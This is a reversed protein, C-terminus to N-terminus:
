RGACSTEWLSPACHTAFTQEASRPQTNKHSLLSSHISLHVCALTSAIFTPASLLPGDTKLWSFLLLCFTKSRLPVVPAFFVALLLPRNRNLAFIYKSFDIKRKEDTSQIDHHTVASPWPRAWLCWHVGLQAMRTSLFLGERSHEEVNKEQNVLGLNPWFVCSFTSLRYTMLLKHKAKSKKLFSETVISCHSLPTYNNENWLYLFCSKLIDM